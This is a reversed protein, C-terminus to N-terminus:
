VEQSPNLPLSGFLRTHLLIGIGSAALKKGSLEKKRSPALGAWNLEKTPASSGTNIEWKFWDQTLGGSGGESHIRSASSSVLQLM